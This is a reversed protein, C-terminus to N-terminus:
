QNQGIATLWMAPMKSELTICHKASWGVSTQICLLFGDTDSFAGFAATKHKQGVAALWLAPM